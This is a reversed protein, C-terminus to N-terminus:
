NWGWTYAKYLYGNQFKEDRIEHITTAGLIVPYFWGGKSSGIVTNTSAQSKTIDKSTPVPDVLVTRITFVRNETKTGFVGDGKVWEAAFKNFSDVRTIATNYTWFPWRTQFVEVWMYWISGTDEGGNVLFRSDNGIASPLEVMDTYSIVAKFKAYATGFYKELLAALEVEIASNEEATTQAIGGAAGKGYRYHCCWESSDDRGPTSSASWLNRVQLISDLGWVARCGWLYVVFRFSRRSERLHERIIDIGFHNCLV